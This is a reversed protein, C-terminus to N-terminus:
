GPLRNYIETVTNCHFCRNVPFRMNSIAKQMEQTYHFQAQTYREDNNEANTTKQESFQGGSKLGYELILMATKYLMPLGLFGALSCAYSDFDCEITYDISLGGTHNLSTATSFTFPSQIKSMRSLIFASRSDRGSCSSCGRSDLQVKYANGLLTSDYGIWLKLDQRNSVVEINTNIEVIQDSVATITAAGIIQGTNLNRVQVTTAGSFAAYLRIRGIRMKLMENRNHFDLRIGVFGTQTMLERNDPLVGVTRNELGTMAAISKPMNSIIDTAVMHAATARNAAFMDVVTSYSDDMLDELQSVSYGIQNLKFPENGTTCNDLGVLSTLCDSM